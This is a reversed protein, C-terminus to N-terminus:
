EAKASSGSGASCAWTGRPKNPRSMGLVLASSGGFALLPLGSPLSNVRQGVRRNTLRLPSNNSSSPRCDDRVSLLIDGVGPCSIPISPSTSKGANRESAARASSIIGDVVGSSSSAGADVVTSVDWSAGAASSSTGVVTM